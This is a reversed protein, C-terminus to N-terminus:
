SGVREEFSKRGTGRIEVNPPLARCRFLFDFFFTRLLTSIHPTHPTFNLACPKLFLPFNLLDYPQYPRILKIKRKRVNECAFTSWSGVKKVTWNSTYNYSGPRQHVDVRRMCVYMCERRHMLVGVQQLM